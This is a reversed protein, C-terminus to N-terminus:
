STCRFCSDSTFKALFRPFLHFAPLALPPSVWASRLKKWLFDQAPLLLDTPSPPSEKFNCNDSMASFVKHTFSRDDVLDSRMSRMVELAHLLQPASSGCDLVDHRRLLLESGDKNAHDKFYKRQAALNQFENARVFPVVVPQQPLFVCPVPPKPLSGAVDFADHPLNFFTPACLRIFSSFWYEKNKVLMDAAFRPDGRRLAHYVPESLDVRKNKYEIPNSDPDFVASTACSKDFQTVSKLFSASPDHWDSRRATQELWHLCRCLVQLKPTEGPLRLLSETTERCAEDDPLYAPPPPERAGDVSFEGLFDCFLIRLLEWTNIHEPLSDKYFKHSLFAAQQAKSCFLQTFACLDLSASAPDRALFRALDYAGENQENHLFADCHCDFIRVDRNSSKAASEQVHGGGTTWIDSLQEETLHYAGVPDSEAM